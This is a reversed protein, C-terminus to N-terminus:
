LREPFTSEIDYPKDLYDPPPLPIASPPVDRGINLVVFVLANEVFQVILTQTLQEQGHRPVEAGLM